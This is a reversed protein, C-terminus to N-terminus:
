TTVHCIWQTVTFKKITNFFTFTLKKLFFCNTKNQQVLSSSMDLLQYFKKKKKKKKQKVFCLYFELFSFLNELSKKKKWEKNINEEKLNKKSYKLRKGRKDTEIGKYM